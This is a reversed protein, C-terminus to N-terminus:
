AGNGTLVMLAALGSTAPAPFRNPPMGRAPIPAPAAPAPGLYPNRGVMMARGGNAPYRGDLSVAPVCEMYLHRTPCTPLSPAKKGDSKIWRVVQSGLFMCSLVRSLARLVSRHMPEARVAEILEGVLDSATVTDNCCTFEDHRGTFLHSCRLESAVQHPTTM